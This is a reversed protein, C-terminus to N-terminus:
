TMKDLKNTVHTECTMKTSYNVLHPRLYWKLSFRFTTNNTVYFLTLTDDILHLYLETDYMLILRQIKINESAIGFQVIM